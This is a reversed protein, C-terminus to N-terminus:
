YHVVVRADGTFSTLDISRCASIERRAAKGCRALHGTRLLIWTNQPKCSSLDKSKRM